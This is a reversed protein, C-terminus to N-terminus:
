LNQEGFSIETFCVFFMTSNRIVGSWFPMKVSPNRQQRVRPQQRSLSKRYAKSSYYSFTLSWRRLSCWQTGCQIRRRLEKCLWFSNVVEYHIMIIGVSCNNCFARFLMSQWPDFESFFSYLPQTIRKWFPPNKLPRRYGCFDNDKKDLFLVSQRFFKKVLNARRSLFHALTM